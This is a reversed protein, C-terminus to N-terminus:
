SLGTEPGKVRKKPGRGKQPRRAQPGLCKQAQTRKPEESPGKIKRLEENRLADGLHEAAFATVNGGPALDEWTGGGTAPAVLPSLHPPTALFNELGALVKEVQTRSAVYGADLAAELNHGRQRLETGMSRWRSLLDARERPTGAPQDAALSLFQVQPGGRGSLNWAGLDREERAIASELSHEILQWTLDDSENLKHRRIGRLRDLMDRRATNRATAAVPRLDALEDHFRPDGLYTAWTPSSQMWFEWVDECLRALAPDEVGGASDPWVSRDAPLYEAIAEPLGREGEEGSKCALTSAALFLALGAKRAPSSPRTCANM